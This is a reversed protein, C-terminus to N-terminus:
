RHALLPAGRSWLLLYQSLIQQDSEHTKIDRGSNQRAFGSTGDPSKWLCPIGIDQRGNRPNKSHSLQQMGPPCLINGPVSPSRFQFGWTTGVTDVRETWYGYKFTYVLGLGKLSVFQVAQMNLCSDLGVFTSTPYKVGEMTVKPFFAFSSGLMWRLEMFM